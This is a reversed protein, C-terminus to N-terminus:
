FALSLKEFSVIEPAVSKKGASFGAEALIQKVTGMKEAEQLFLELAKKINKKADEVTNGCSSLDLQPAYSVFMNGEKWVETNLQIEKLYKM